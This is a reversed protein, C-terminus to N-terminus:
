VRVLQAELYETSSVVFQELTLEFMENNVGIGGPHETPSLPNKVVYQVYITVYIQHLASRMSASKTDTLM